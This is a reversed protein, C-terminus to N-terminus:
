GGWARRAPFIVCRVREALACFMSGTRSTNCPGAETVVAYVTRVAAEMVGGTVGFLM